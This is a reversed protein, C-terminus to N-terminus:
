YPKHVDYDTLIFSLGEEVGNEVKRMSAEFGGSKVSYTRTDHLCLGDFADHLLETSVKILEYVTPVRGTYYHWNLFKMVKEVKDFDFDNIIESIIEERFKAVDM